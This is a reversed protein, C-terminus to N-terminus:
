SNTRIFAEVKNVMESSGVFYPIKQHLSEPKIDLIRRYGDSARGGSQEAIFAMPNCEYVLRLKGIPYIESSPYMFIGGRLLNRHFDSVLSGIYRSI